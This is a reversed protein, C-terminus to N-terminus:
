FKNEYDLVMAILRHVKRLFLEIENTNKGIGYKSAMFRARIRGVYGESHPIQSYDIPFAGIKRRTGGVLTIPREEDITPYEKITVVGNIFQLESNRDVVRCVM